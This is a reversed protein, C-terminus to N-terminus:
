KRNQQPSNVEPPWHFVGTRQDLEKPLDSPRIEVRVIKDCWKGVEDIIDQLENSDSFQIISDTLQARLASIVLEKGSSATKSFFKLVGIDTRKRIKTALLTVQLTDYNADYGIYYTKLALTFYRSETLDRIRRDLKRYNFLVVSIIICSAITVSLIM